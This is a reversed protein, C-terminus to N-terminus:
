GAPEVRKLILRGAPLAFTVATTRQDELARPGLAAWGTPMVPRRRDRRRVVQRSPSAPAGTATPDLRGLVAAAPPRGCPRGQFLTSFSSVPWGGHGSSTSTGPHQPFAPRAPRARRTAPASGDRQRSTSSVRPLTSAAPASPKRVCQNRLTEPNRWSSFRVFMLPMQFRPPLRLAGGVGAAHFPPSTSSSRNRSRAPRGPPADGRSTIM